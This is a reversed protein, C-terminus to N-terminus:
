GKDHYGIGINGEFYIIVSISLGLPFLM